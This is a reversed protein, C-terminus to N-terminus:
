WWRAWPEEHISEVALRTADGLEAETEPFAEFAERYRRDINMRGQATVLGEVGQRVAQSRNEFTGDAVLRDLASVLEDPLKVAIQITM